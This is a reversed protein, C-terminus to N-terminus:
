PALTTVNWAEGERAFLRRDHFRGEGKMWLEVRGPMLGYGGWFAPRPVAGGAFAAERERRRALLDDLSPIPRSQPSVWAGIQSLRPRGAFYADSEAPSLPAVTGEVRVQKELAAWHFVLAARPNGDLERAKRSEYNTFFRLAGEPTLGRFLVVRASPVGDPTATALVMAEPERVGQIRAEDLWTLLTAIPDTM